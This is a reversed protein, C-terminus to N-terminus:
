TAPWARVADIVRTVDDDALAPYLPLSVLEDCVRQANPSPAPSVGAFAPQAPMPVPYHVLSDIKCQRLHNRLQDRRNTLVPFLHYVHGTDLEPPVRVPSTSLEARYRGAIVRRRQTWDALRPLRARLVAAQLEDLRSHGAVQTHHDRRTQGGNRLQRIRGALDSDNTCVAGGDGLAGLNKTPYFSYAAAAGRTGVPVGNCTALHAQCCDEILALGHREALVALEDLPAPQGYLHVPLIAATRPGILAEVQNLGLTLRNPDIDAFVPVAGALMVAQATYVASLATTIVEDGPGLGLARLALVLADTGSAVAVAHRSSTAVSFETEFGEVEPGLVFWGRDLVRRIATEVDAADEHPTLSTWRVPTTM